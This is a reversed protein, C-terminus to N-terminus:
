RRGGTTPLWKVSGNGQIWGAAKDKRCRFDPAQDSRKADRCDEIDTSNCCYCTLGEFGALPSRSATPPAEDDTADRFEAEIVNPDRSNDMEEASVEGAGILDSIARNKARTTATAPIDGPHSFHIRGNCGSLCCRHGSWDRKFCTLGTAAECCRERVHCEHDAEARRGSADHTAEVRIRAYIPFGDADRIIEEFSVRDSINFARAYKRWASKKKFEKNGIKQYDSKVLLERTLEQYDNWQQVIQQVPLALAVVQSPVIVLGTQPEENLAVM